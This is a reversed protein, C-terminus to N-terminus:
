VCVEQFTARKGNDIHCLECRKFHPGRVMTLTAHSLCRSIHGERVMTLTPHRLCVRACRKFHSGRVKTLTAHSMCLGRSIYGKGNDIHCPVCVEQFTVRKGKDIHCPERVCRSIHSVMTLTAHSLCVEQFTVRVM